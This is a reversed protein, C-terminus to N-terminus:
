TKVYVGKCVITFNSQAKNMSDAFCYVIDDNFDAMIEIKGDIVGKRHGMVYSLMNGILCSITVVIIIISLFTDAKM